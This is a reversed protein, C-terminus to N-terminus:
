RVFPNIPALKSGPKIVPQDWSFLPESTPKIRPTLSQSQTARWAHADHNSRSVTWVVFPTASYEMILPLILKQLVVWASAYPSVFIQFPGKESWCQVVHSTVVKDRLCRCWPLLTHISYQGNCCDGVTEFPIVTLQHSFTLFIFFSLCSYLTSTISPKWMSLYPFQSLLSASCFDVYHQLFSWACVFLCAFLFCTLLLAVCLRQTSCRMISSMIIYFTYKFNIMVTIFYQARM